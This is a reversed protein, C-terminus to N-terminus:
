INTKQDSQGELTIRTSNMGMLYENEINKAVSRLIAVNEMMTTDDEAIPDYPKGLSRFDIVIHGDYIRVLVDVYTSQDKRAAANVAIEEVALAARYKTRRDMGMEECINYLKESIETVEKSNKEITVDLVPKAEVDNELLLPWILRGGSRSAYKMNCILIVVILMSATLPFAIWLGNIGKISTLLWAVPIIDAFSDLASLISSYRNLGIVKLYNYFIIILYRPIYLLSYIRLATVALKLQEPEKINYLSAIPATFIIFLSTGLVSIAFIGAMTTKLIGAEGHFDRQGHLIAMMPVSAAAMSGLFITMVSASQICLSYAVVANAGAATMALRNCVAFQVSLGVQNIADTSGYRFVDKIQAFSGKVDKSIYLKMRGAAFAAVMILAACIYGTLTAWAAGEVGMHFVHIYVYDMCINIVNSTVNVATTLGPYGAAPLFSLITMTVVMLPASLLLVSLYKRFPVLLTENSCLLKSIPDIFLFGSLLLVLGFAFALIVACTISKGAADRDRRGIASAYATSGGSGLLQLAASMILVVPLGLSIVAMAESGLLNSVLMTDVFDNLSLAAYTIMTPLLYQVFKKYLLRNSRVM